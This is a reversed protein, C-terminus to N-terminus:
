ASRIRPQSETGADGNPEADADQQAAVSAEPAQLAGDQEATLPQLLSANISQRLEDAQQRTAHQDGRLESALADLRQEELELVVVRGRWEDLERTAQATAGELRRLARRARRRNGGSATDARAHSRQRLWDSFLGATSAGEAPLQERLARMQRRQTATQEALTEARARAECLAEANAARTQHLEDARDRLHALQECTRDLAAQLDAVRQDRQERAAQIEAQGQQRRRTALELAEHERQLRTADALQAGLQELRLDLERERINLETERRRRELALEHDIGERRRTLLEVEYDRDASLRRVRSEAGFAAKHQEVFGPPDREWHEWLRMLEVPTLRRAPDDHGSFGPIHSLGGQLYQRYRAQVPESYYAHVAAPEFLKLAILAFFLMGLAAQAFGSVTEFHPVGAEAPSERLATLAKSRAAFTLKPADAPPQEAAVEATVREVLAQQEDRVTALTETLEALRQEQEDITAQIPQLRADLEAQKEALVGALLEARANWKRAEPGFGEPRGDRGLVEDGVRERADALDRRLVDIEPAYESEIRERRAREAALVENRRAIQAELTRIRGQFGTDLQAVRNEVQERLTEARQAFYAELQGQHWGTIDDARILKEIFPATVYLSIAVIGLRVVLGFLWRLTPGLGSEGTAAAAKRRLSPRESMILSADVIWIVSFMLLFMFLAVPPALWTAAAPVLSAGVAGWVFGEISAMLLIVIWASMLWTRAAPTLLQEGYPRLTLLATLRPERGPEKGQPGAAFWLKALRHRWTGERRSARLHQEAM